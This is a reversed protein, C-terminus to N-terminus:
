VRAAMADFAAGLRGVEDDGSVGVRREYQGRSIAEAGRTVTTLGRALRRGLSASLIVGVIGMLIGAIVLSRFSQRVSALAERAPRDVIVSWPAGPIRAAGAVREGDAREYTLAGGASDISSPVELRRGDLSVWLSGDDNRFTPVAGDSLFGVIRALASSDTVRFRREEAVVGLLRGSPDRVPAAMWYRPEGDDIRLRSVQASDGVATEMTSLFGEARLEDATAIHDGVGTVREGSMRRLELAALTGGRGASQALLLAAERVATTDGSSMAEIIAPARALRSMARGRNTVSATVLQATREAAAGLRESALAATRLRIEYYAFALLVGIVAALLASTYVAFRRELPLSRIKAIV